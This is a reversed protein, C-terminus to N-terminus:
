STSKSLDIVPTPSSFLEAGLGMKLFPPERIALRRHDFQAYLSYVASDAFIDPSSAQQRAANDTRRRAGTAIM